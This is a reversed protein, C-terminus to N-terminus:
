GESHSLIGRALQLMEKLPIKFRYTKGDCDIGIGIADQWTPTFVRLNADIYCKPLKSELQGTEVYTPVSGSPEVALDIEDFLDLPDIAEPEFFVLSEFEYTTPDLGTIKEHFGVQTLRM